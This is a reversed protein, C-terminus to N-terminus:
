KELILFDFNQGPLWEIYCIFSNIIWSEIINFHIECIIFFFDVTNM